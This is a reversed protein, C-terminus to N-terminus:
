EGLVTNIYNSPELIEEAITMSVQMVPEAAFGFVVTLLVLPIIPYLLSGVKIKRQETTHKEKGWYVYMMIKVMSYLTLLGVFLAIGVIIYHGQDLGDLVLPYKAFFGTLPPIGALSMATIFFLWALWPHSSLLGGMKKLDSTGTIRETVGAFQFLATKVISHHAIFYIAGAIALPSFISFGMMIYGYQSICHYALISKYNYSAVAGLVGLIMTFAAMVLIVTHTFEPNQNFVVSFMRIIAYLGVKTLLGGFLAAIASPPGTYARPLWFYLPFIAGKVGFIVIFLVAIVNLLGDQGLEAVRVGLHAFNLTGTAAYIYAVGALFLMSAFMNIVFYKFTERLQFKSSGHVMLIYSSILMVEFFVFLNFLDGTLFSGNIGTLLFFFFPYFFYRSREPRITKFAYYLSVTGIIASVLLMFASLLDAVLPIGYPAQWDGLHIVVTGNTLVESFLLISGILMALMTVASIVKQIRENKSFFVLVAGMIVPVILPILILNTM